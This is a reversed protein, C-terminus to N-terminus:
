AAVEEAFVEKLSQLYAILDAFQQHSLGAQLGEPMVSVPSIKRQEVDTKRVVIKNAASDYLTVDADTEGRVVGAQINGDKTRIITQEYGSEIQKSPYLVSEILQARNYKSGVGTLDPGVIGGKGAVAHCKICGIGQANHFLVLGRAADGDHGVSFADYTKVDTSRTDVDFLKGKRGAAYSVSFGWPGADQTIKAVIVNRGAILHAAAHFQEAEWGHNGLDEYVKKGNVWLVLGDDHGMGLTLDRETPSNLECVAYAYVHEHPDFKGALDVFGERTAGTKKWELPKKDAGKLDAPLHDIGSVPSINLSDPTNEPFPGIIQWSRIPENKAYIKQLESIATQSLPPGSELRAEAIPLAAAASRNSRREAFAECARTTAAWAMSIPM